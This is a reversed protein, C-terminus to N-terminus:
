MYTLMGTSVTGGVTQESISGLIKMALGSEELIRNLERLTTGARVTVEMKDKDM